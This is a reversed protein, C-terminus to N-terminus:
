EKLSLPKLPGLTGLAGMEIIRRITLCSRQCTSGALYRLFIYDEQYNIFVFFAIDSRKSAGRLCLIDLRLFLSLLFCSFNEQLRLLVELKFRQVKPCFLALHSATVYSSPWKSACPLIKIIWQKILHLRSRQCLRHRSIILEDCSLFATDDFRGDDIDLTNWLSRNAVLSLHIMDVSVLDHCCLVTTFRHSIGVHPSVRVRSQWVVPLARLSADLLPILIVLCLCRIQNVVWAFVIELRIHSTSSCHLLALILCKSCSLVEPSFLNYFSLERCLILFTFIHGLFNIRQVRLRADSLQKVSM